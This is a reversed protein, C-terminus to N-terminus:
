ETKKLFSVAEQVASFSGQSLGCVAQMYQLNEIDRDSLIGNIQPSTLLSEIENKAQEYQGVDFLEQVKQVNLNRKSVAITVQSNGDLVFLLFFVFSFM